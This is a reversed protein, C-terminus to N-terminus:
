VSQVHELLSLIPRISIILSKETINMYVYYKIFNLFYLKIRCYNINKLNNILSTYIPEVKIIANKKM